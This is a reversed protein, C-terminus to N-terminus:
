GTMATTTGTSPWWSSRWRRRSTHGPGVRRSASLLVMTFVVIDGSPYALNILLAPLNTTDRASAAVQNISTVWSITFLSMGIIFADLLTRLRDTHRGDSPWVAFAMLVTFALFFLDAVSVQPMEGGLIIEVYCWILQGLTWSGCAVTVLVWARRQPGIHRAASVAAALSALVAAALQGVNNVAASVASDDGSIRTALYGSLALALVFTAGIIVPPRHWPSRPPPVPTPGVSVVAPPGIEIADVSSMQPGKAAVGGSNRLGSRESPM